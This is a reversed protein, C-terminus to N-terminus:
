PDTRMSELDGDWQLKGRYAKIQTQQKLQILTKLALEVVERKSKVGTLRLAEDMLRDNIVINTRM